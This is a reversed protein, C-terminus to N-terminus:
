KAGHRLEELAGDFSVHRGVAVARRVGLLALQMEREGCPSALPRFQRGQRSYRTATKSHAIQAQLHSKRAELREFETYWAPSEITATAPM